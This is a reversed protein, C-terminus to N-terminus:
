MKKDNAGLSDDFCQPNWGQIQSLMIYKLVDQIILLCKM